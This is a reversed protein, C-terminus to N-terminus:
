PALGNAMNLLIIGGIILCFGFFKGKNFNEKYLMIGVIATLATGLGSWIAYTTGLPITKLCLSIGYFALSYGIAFGITPRIRKFGNSAKLMSSGFVECIISLLLLIYVSM